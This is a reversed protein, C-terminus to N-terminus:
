RSWQSRDLAGCSPTSAWSRTRKEGWSACAGEDSWRPANMAAIPNHRRRAHASQVVMPENAASWRIAGGLHQAGGNVAATTGRAVSVDHRHRRGAPRSRKRGMAGPGAETRHSSGPRSGPTGPRWSEDFLRARTWPSGTSVRAHEDHRRTDQGGVQGVAARCQM